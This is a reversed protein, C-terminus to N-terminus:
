NLISNYIVVKELYRTLVEEKVSEYNDRITGLLQKNNYLYACYLCKHAFFPAEKGMWKSATEVIKKPGDVFIWAKLFDRHHSSLVKNLEVRDIKGLHLESIDNSTLGCCGVVDGRPELAVTDFIGDCGENNGSLLKKDFKYVTNTHFSVWITPMVKLLKSYKQGQIYKTYLPHNVFDEVKFKKSSNTEVAICTLMGQEVSAIACHLVCEVPIFKQHSDGTSFNIENLGNYKLIQIKERASEISTGWFGNTVCRTLFGLDHAYRISKVLLKFNIFCEGGSFVVVKISEIHKIKDLFSKIKGFNLSNGKLRPSCSFCCEDCEAVCQYTMLIAATRPNPELNNM